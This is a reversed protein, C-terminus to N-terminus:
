GINKCPLDPQSLIGACPSPFDTGKYAAPLVTIDTCAKGWCPEILHVRCTCLGQLYSRMFFNLLLFLYLSATFRASAVLSVYPHGSM